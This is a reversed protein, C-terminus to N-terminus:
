QTLRLQSIQSAISSFAVSIQTGNVDFYNGISSACDKLVAEGEDPAEFAVTFVEIAGGAKASDCIKKLNADAITGSGVDKVVNQYETYAADDGSHQFFYDAVDDAHFRRYLQHFNWQQMDSPVANAAIFRDDNTDTPSGPVYWQSSAPNDPMEVMYGNFETGNALSESYWIRTPGAKYQDKLDSHDTNQGDTMLVIYKLVDPQDYRVPHGRMQEILLGDDVMDTVVPAFTSDLLGVAWNMGYDISTMGYAQFSDIHNHLTTENNSYLMITPHYSGCWFSFEHPIEYAQNEVGNMGWDVSGGSFSASVDIADSASLRRTEFDADHFRACPADWNRTEYFKINGGNSPGSVTVRQNAMNLRNALEDDMYVQQNYPVITISTRTTGGNALVTTVFEKAATKLNTMKSNRGMSGSIDLVLAIEIKQEGEKAAGATTGSLTNVGLMRMFMTDMNFDINATVSRNIPTNSGQPIDLNPDVDVMDPNYGAKAVYEKVLAIVEADTDADQTLSSSAIVASDVTNQLTQRESEFRMIDVAMGSIFLILVFLFISFIMIAGREDDRFKESRQKAMDYALSFSDIFTRM